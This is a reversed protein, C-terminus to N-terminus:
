VTALALESYPFPSEFCDVGACGQTRVQTHQCHQAQLSVYGCQSGVVFHPEFQLVQGQRSRSL